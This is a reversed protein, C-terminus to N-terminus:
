GPVNSVSAGSYQGVGVDSTSKIYVCQIDCTNTIFVSSGLPRATRTLKTPNGCRRKGTKNRYGATNTQAPLSARCRIKGMKKGQPQYHCDNRIGTILGDRIELEVFSARHRYSAYLLTKIVQAVETSTLSFGCFCIKVFKIGTLTMVLADSSAAMLGTLQRM